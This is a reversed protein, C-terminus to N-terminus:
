EDQREILLLIQRASPPASRPRLRGSPAAPLPQFPQSGRIRQSPAEDPGSEAVGTRQPADPVALEDWLLGLSRSEVVRLGRGSRSGEVWALTAKRGPLAAEGVVTPAASLALDVGGPSPQIRFRGPLLFPTEEREDGVRLLLRVDDSPIGPVYLLATQRGLDSHFDLHPTGRISWSEGGDLSLFVEWEEASAIAAAMESGPEWALRVLGGAPLLSGAAPEVLRPGDPTPAPGLDRAPGTRSFAPPAGAETAALAVAPLLLLAALWGAAVRGARSTWLRKLVPEDYGM